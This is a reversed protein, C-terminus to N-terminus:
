FYLDPGTGLLKVSGFDLAVTSHYDRLFQQHFLFLIDKQSFPLKKDIKVV